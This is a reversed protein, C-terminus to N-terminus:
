HACAVDYQSVAAPNNSNQPQEGAYVSGAIGAPNFASGLASAADGPTFPASPSGCTDNPQGVAKPTHTGSQTTTSGTQSGGSNAALAPGAVWVALASVAVSRLIHKM